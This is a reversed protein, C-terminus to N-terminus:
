LLNILHHLLEIRLDNDEAFEQLESDPLSELPVDLRKVCANCGDSAYVTKDPPSYAILRPKPSDRRTRGNTEYSEPDAVWIEPDPGRFSAVITRISDMDFRVLDEAANSLPANTLYELRM